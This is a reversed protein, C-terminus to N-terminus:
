IGLASRLAAGGTTNKGFSASRAEGSSLCKLNRGQLGGRSWETFSRMVIVTKGREAMERVFLRAAHSSPLNKVVNRLQFDKSHYPFLEITAVERSLTRNAAAFDGAHRVKALDDIVGQFKGMWWQYASSWCLEPDLMFFPYDLEDIKEQRVQRVIAERYKDVKQEAHFDVISLGPNTLCLLIEARRLDGLYPSPLLSLQAASARSAVLWEDATKPMRTDIKSANRRHFLFDKDRPHCYPGEELDCENWFQILPEAPHL